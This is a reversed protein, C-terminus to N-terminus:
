NPAPYFIFGRLLLNLMCKDPKIPKKMVDVSLLM